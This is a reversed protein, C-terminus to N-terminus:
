LRLSCEFIGVHKQEDKVRLCANQRYKTSWIADEFVYSPRAGFLRPGPPVGVCTGGGVFANPTLALVESRVIRHISACAPSKQETPRQIQGCLPVALVAVNDLDLDGLAEVTLADTLSM